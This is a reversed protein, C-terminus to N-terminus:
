IREFEKIIVGGYMKAVQNCDLARQTALLNIPKPYAALYQVQRGEDTEPKLIQTKLADNFERDVKLLNEKREM